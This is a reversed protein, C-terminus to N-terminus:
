PILSLVHHLSALTQSVQLRWVAQGLRMITHQQGVGYMYLAHWVNSDWRGSGTMQYAYPAAEAHCKGSVQRHIAAFVNLCFPKLTMATFVSYRGTAHTMPLMVTILLTVTVPLQFVGLVEM